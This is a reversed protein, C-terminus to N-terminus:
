INDNNLWSILIERQRKSPIYINISENKRIRSRWIWQIMESLAYLEEDIQVHHQEFYRIYDPSIFRNCCYALNYRDDYENTARANCSLFGKTYGNGKLQNKSGKFTTWLITDSMSETQHQFYNYINNKLKERLNINKRLWSLSLATRRNGVNNLNGDYINILERYKAKDYPRKDEFKILQYDEITYKEYQVECMEFYNCMMSAEFLYTLIYIDKFSEFAKPSFNWALFQIRKTQKIEIVIGNECLKKFNNFEGEYENDIWEVIKTESIRIVNNETLMDYDKNTIDFMDIVDMSEDLILTYEGSSILELTEDTCTRFLSHTTVINEDRILLSHLDDLKGEGLHRPEKFTPIQELVREVESLFPTIFIYKTDTNHKMHKIFHTSKGTGMLSDVVKIKIIVVRRDLKINGNM